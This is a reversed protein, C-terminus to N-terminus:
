SSKLAKLALIVKTAEDSSLDVLRLPKIKIINSIFERLALATKNRAKEEWLTEIAFVQKASAGGKSKRVVPLPKRDKPSVIINGDGNLYNKLGELECIALEKSSKVGFTNDLFEEWLEADHSYVNRYLPALHIMALLKNRYRLQRETM